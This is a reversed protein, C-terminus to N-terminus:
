IRPRSCPGIIPVPLSKAKAIPLKGQHAGVVALRWASKPIGRVEWIWAEKVDQQVFTM